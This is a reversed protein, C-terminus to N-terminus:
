AITHFTSNPGLVALAQADLLLDEALVADGTALPIADGSEGRRGGGPRPDHSGQSAQQQWTSEQVAVQIREIKLGQDEFGQQLIHLNNELYSKVTPSEAVITALVGNGSTEAKIEIRGLSSPKLQIKLISEGSQVQMRIREVLQTLFDPEQPATPPKPTMLESPARFEPMPAEMGVALGGGGSKFGTHGSPRVVGWVDTESQSSGVPRFRFPLHRDPESDQRVARGPTESGTDPTEPFKGDPADTGSFKAERAPFTLLGCYTDSDRPRASSSIELATGAMRFPIFPQRSARAEMETLDPMQGLRTGPGIERRIGDRGAAGGEEQFQLAIGAEAPNSAPKAPLTAGTRAESARQGIAVSLSIEETPECAGTGTACVRVPLPSEAPNADELVSGSASPSLATDATASVLRLAQDGAVAAGVGASTDRQASPTSEPAFAPGSNADEQSEATRVSSSVGPAPNEFAVDARSCPWPHAQITSWVVHNAPTAGSTLPQPLVESSGPPEAGPSGAPALRSVSPAAPPRAPADSRAEFLTSAPTAIRASVDATRVWERDSSLDVAARGDPAPAQQDPRARSEAAAPAADPPTTADASSRLSVDGKRDTELVMVASASTSHILNHEPVNPIQETVGAAPLLAPQLFSAPLDPAARAIGAMGIGTDAELRFLPNGAQWSLSTSAANGAADRCSEEGGQPEDVATIRGGQRENGAAAVAQIVAAFGGGDRSAGAEEPKPNEPDQSAVANGPLIEIRM